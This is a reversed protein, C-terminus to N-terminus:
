SAETASSGPTGPTASTTSLPRIFGDLSAWDFDTDGAVSVATCTVMGTGLAVLTSLLSNYTLLGPANAVQLALAAVTTVAGVGMAARVRLFPFALCGAMGGAGISAVVIFVAGVALNRSLTSSGDAGPTSWVRSAIGLAIGSVIGVSFGLNSVRKWVISAAIPFVSAARIMGYVLILTLIDIRFTAVAVAIVAFLVMSLRAVLKLEGDSAHPRLTGRWLDTMTISSLAALDSDSTSTIAAIILLMFPVAMWVPLYESAVAPVITNNDGDIPSVGNVLAVFGLTGVSFVLAVYM